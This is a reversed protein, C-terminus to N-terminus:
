GQNVARVISQRLCHCARVCACFQVRSLTTTGSRCASVSPWTGFEQIRRVQVQGRSLLAPLRDTKPGKNPPFRTRSVLVVHPQPPARKGRSHVNPPSPLFSHPRSSMRQFSLVTLEHRLELRLKGPSFRRACCVRQPTVGGGM